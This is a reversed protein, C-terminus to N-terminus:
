TIEAFINNSKSGRLIFGFGKKGKQLVVTKMNNQNSNQTILDILTKRKLLISDDLINNSNNNNGSNEDNNNGNNKPLQFEEVCNAKFWGENSNCRGEWYGSDGVSLVEIIDGKKLELEGPQTPKYPKVCIFTRNPISPYLRKRAYAYEIKPSGSMQSLSASGFGHDDSSISRSRSSSNPSASNQQQQQQQEVLTAQDTISLDDLKPMSRSKNISDNNNWENILTHTTTSSSIISKNNHSTLSTLTTQRSSLSSYNNNNNLLIGNLTGNMSMSYNSQSDTNNNNNSNIYISRRKTNYFPRERILVVDSDKHNKILDAISQNGTIIATEFATQNALNREHRNAGRFLLIRACNEQNHIACVHLPSNGSNNRANVDSGYYILHDLHQSLGLKCAKLYNLFFNCFFYM